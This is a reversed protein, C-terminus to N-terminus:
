SLKLVIPKGRQGWAYGTGTDYQVGIYNGGGSVLIKSEDTIVSDPVFVYVADKIASSISYNKVTITYEVWANASGRGYITWEFIKYTGNDGFSELTNTRIYYGSYFVNGNAFYNSIIKSLQSPTDISESIRNVIGNM